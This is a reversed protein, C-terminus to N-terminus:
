NHIYWLELAGSLRYNVSLLYENINDTLGNKM